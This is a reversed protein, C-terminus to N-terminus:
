GRADLGHQRGLLVRQRGEAPNNKNKLMEAKNHGHERFRQVSPPPSGPCFGCSQEKGGVELCECGGPKIQEKVLGAPSTGTQGGLSLRARPM